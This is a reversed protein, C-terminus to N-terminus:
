LTELVSLGSDFYSFVNHKLSSDGTIKGYIFYRDKNFLEETSDLDIAICRANGVREYIEHLTNADEDTFATFDFGLSRISPFIDTYSHGYDTRVNKSQDVTKESFGKNPGQALLTAKSLIIKPVELYSYASVPDTISLRWYRYEQDITFYHSALGNTEDITLAQDVPPSTWVNTHSAQIKIVANSSFKVGVFSDFVLVVSDIAEKTKIDIVVSQNLTSTTRWTFGRIQNKLNLVPFESDASSATLITASQWVYNFDLIRFECSM